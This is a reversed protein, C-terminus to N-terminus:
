RVMGELASLMIDMADTPKKLFETSIQGMGGTTLQLNRMQELRTKPTEFKTVCLM